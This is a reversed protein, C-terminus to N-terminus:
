RHSRPPVAREADLRVRLRARAGRTRDADIARACARGIEYYDDIRLQWLAVLAARLDEESGAQLILSAAYSIREPEWGTSAKM